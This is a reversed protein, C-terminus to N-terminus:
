ARYSVHPITPLWGDVWAGAYMKKEGTSFEVVHGPLEAAVLPLLRLGQEAYRRAADHSSWGTEWHFGDDFLAQWAYLEHTLTAPLGFSEPTINGSTGWLPASCYDSKLRIRRDWAIDFERVVTGAPLPTKGSPSWGRAWGGVYGGWGAVPWESYRIVFGPRERVLADIIARTEREYEVSSSAPSWGDGQRYDREFLAQWADIRVTLEASLGLDACTAHGYACILPPGDFDPYLLLTRDPTLDRDTM